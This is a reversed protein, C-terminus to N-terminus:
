GARTADLLASDGSVLAGSPRGWAARYVADALGIVSADPETVTEPATQPLQGPVLRVTWARGADAAHYLVTGSLEAVAWADTHRQILRTLVEDVGDAAFHPDVGSDTGAAAQADIRHVTVEHAMRRSWFGATRPGIPTFHWAPTAPDTTVFVHLLTALRDDFRALLADFEEHPSDVRTPPSEPDAARLVRIAMDFVQGVHLILRHVTWNPCTPIPTDAGASVAAIRLAGAETAIRSQYDAAEM